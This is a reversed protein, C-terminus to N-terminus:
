IKWFDKCFKKYCKYASNIAADDVTFPNAGNLTVPGYFIYKVNVSEIKDRKPWKYNGTGKELFKM